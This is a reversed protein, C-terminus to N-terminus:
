DVGHRERLEIGHATEIVDSELVRLMAARFLALGGRGEKLDAEVTNELTETIDALWAEVRDPMDGTALKAIAAETGADILDSEPVDPVEDAAEGRPPLLGEIEERSYNRLAEMIKDSDRRANGEKMGQAGYLAKRWAALRVTQMSWKKAADLHVANVLNGRIVEAADMRGLDVDLLRELSLCRGAGSYDPEVLTVSLEEALQDLASIWIKEADVGEGDAGGFRELLYRSPKIDAGSAERGLNPRWSFEELETM